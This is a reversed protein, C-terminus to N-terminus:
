DYLDREFRLEVEELTAHANIRADRRAFDVRVAEAPLGLAASLFRARVDSVDALRSAAPVPGDHLMDQWPLMQGEVGAAKLRLM